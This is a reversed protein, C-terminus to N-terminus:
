SKSTCSGTQSYCCRFQKTFCAGLQLLAPQGHAEGPMPHQRPQLDCARSMVRSYLRGFATAAPAADASRCALSCSASALLCRSFCRAACSSACSRTPTCCPSARSNCAAACCLVCQLSLAKPAVALGQLCALVTCQACYHFRDHYRFGADCRKITHTHDCNGTPNREPEVGRHMYAYHAALRRHFPSTVLWGQKAHKCHLFIVHMVQRTHCVHGTCQKLQCQMSACWM